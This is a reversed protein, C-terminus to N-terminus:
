SDETLLRLVIQKRRLSYVCVLGGSEEWAIHSSYPSVTMRVIRSSARAITSTSKGTCLLVSTEDTGIAVVAPEDGAEVCTVGHVKVFPPVILDACDVNKRLRVVRWRGDSVQLGVAATLEAQNDFGFVVPSDPKIGRVTIVGREAALDQFVGVVKVKPPHFLQVRVEGREVAPGPAPFRVNAGPANPVLEIYAESGERQVTLLRGRHLGVAAVNVKRVEYTRDPLMECLEGHSTVLRWGSAQICPGLVGKEHVAVEYERDAASVRRLNGRPSNVGTSLPLHWAGQGRLPGRKGYWNVRMSTGQM